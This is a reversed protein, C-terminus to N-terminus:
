WFLGVGCVCAGAISLGFAILGFIFLNAKHGDTLKWSESLADIPGLGRDVILPITMCLGLALIVGPVILFIMGISIAITSVLNAVFVSVFFPAGSFLDGFAYPVGKAVKLSFSMIGAMVFSSVVINIIVGVGQMGLYLPGFVELGSGVRHKATAMGIGGIVQAIFNTVGGVVSILIIGVVVTALITGPDAKVREWAFTV